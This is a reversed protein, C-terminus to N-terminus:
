CFVIAANTQISHQAAVYLRLCTFSEIGYRKWQLDGEGQSETAAWIEESDPNMNLPLELADALRECEALLRHSSGVMEGSVRFDQGPILVAPFDQPIYYGEADSHIVLHDFTRKEITGGFFRDLVSPRPRDFAEYYRKLVPDNSAKDDGPPPLQGKIDLYAAIRRLYHLGSYGYMDSSWVACSEPERHESLGQSVLFGSLTKFESRYHEAGEEDSEILDALIGVELNLGM